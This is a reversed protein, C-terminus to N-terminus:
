QSFFEHGDLAMFRLAWPNDALAKNRKLTHNVGALLERLTQPDILATVQAIRDASPKRPGILKEWRRAVRLEGELANLSRLRTACMMLASTFIAATPIQARQRADSLSAVRSSWDFVKDLYRAFRAMM